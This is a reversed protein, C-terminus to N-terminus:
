GERSPYSISAAHGGQSLAAVFGSGCAGAPLIHRLQHAQGSVRPVRWIPAGLSCEFVCPTVGLRVIERPWGCCAGYAFAAPRALGLAEAGADIRSLQALARPQGYRMPLACPAAKVGPRLALPAMTPMAMSLCPTNHGITHGGKFALTLAPNLPIHGYQRYVKKIDLLFIYIYYLPIYIVCIPPIPYIYYIPASHTSM